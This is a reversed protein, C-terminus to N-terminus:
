KNYIVVEFTWDDLYGAGEGILVQVSVYHWVDKEFTPLTLAWKGSHTAEQLNSQCFNQNVKDLDGPNLVVTEWLGNKPNIYQDIAQIRLGLGGSMRCEAAFSATILYLKNAAVSFQQTAVNHWVM